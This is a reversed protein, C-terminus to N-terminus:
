LQDARSILNEGIFKCMTQFYQWRFPRYPRPLARAPDFNAYPQPLPVETLIDYAPFDGMAKIEETSFGTPTYKLTKNPLDYHQFNPLLNKSNLEVSPKANALMRKNAGALTTALKPLQSRRSPPFAAPLDKLGEERQALRRAVDDKAPPKVATTDSSKEVLRSNSSRDSGSNFLRIFGTWTLDSWTLGTVQASLVFIAMLLGFALPWQLSSITLYAMPFWPSPPLSSESESTM